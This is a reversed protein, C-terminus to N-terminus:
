LPARPLKELEAFLEDAVRAVPGGWSVVHEGADRWTAERDFLVYVDRAVEQPCEPIVRDVFDRGVAQVEDWYQAIDAHAYESVAEPLARREIFRPFMPLWVYFVSLHIDSHGELYEM